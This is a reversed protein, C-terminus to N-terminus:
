PNGQLVAVDPGDDRMAVGGAGGRSRAGGPDSEFLTM